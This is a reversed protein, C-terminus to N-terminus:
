VIGLGFYGIFSGPLAIALVTGAALFPGFPLATRRDATTLILLGVGYVAGLVFSLMFGGVLAQPGIWGLYAGLLPSLRVDGDGLGGRSTIHLAGMVAVASLAGVISRGVQNMDGEIFSSLTLLPAGFALTAYSIERPLRFTRIDILTLAVLGFALFCFGAAAFVDTTRAVLAMVVVTTMVVVLRRSPRWGCWPEIWQPIFWGGLAGVGSWILLGTFGM